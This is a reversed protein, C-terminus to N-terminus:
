QVEPQVTVYQGALVEEIAPTPKPGAIILKGDVYSHFGEVGDLAQALTVDHSDDWYSPRELKWVTLTVQRKKEREKSREAAEIHPQFRFQRDYNMTQFFWEGLKYRKGKMPELIGIKVLRSYLSPMTKENVGVLEAADIQTISIMGTQFATHALVATLMNMAPTFTEGADLAAQQAAEINSLYWASYVATM